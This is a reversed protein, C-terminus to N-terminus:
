GEGAVVEALPTTPDLSVGQSRLAAEVVAWVWDSLLVTLEDLTLDGPEEAWRAAAGDVFGVLGSSLPQIITTEIRLVTAWEGILAALLGAIIQRVDNVVTDGGPTTIAHRVLYRYLNRHETMWQLHTSVATRIVNEPSAATDWASALRELLMQEARAAIVQNLEVAGSFHRYLRTRAVGAHAAIQETSAEPGHEDIAALAAEVFEQRRREQQGTWRAARGDVAQQEAV